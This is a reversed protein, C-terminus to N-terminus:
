SKGIAISNVRSRIRLRAKTSSNCHCTLGPKM